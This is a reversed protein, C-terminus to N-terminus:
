NKSRLEKLKQDYLKKTEGGSSESEIENFWHKM